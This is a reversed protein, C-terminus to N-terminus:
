PLDVYVWSFCKLGFRVAICGMTIFWKKYDGLASIVNSPALLGKNIVQYSYRVAFPVIIFRLSLYITM